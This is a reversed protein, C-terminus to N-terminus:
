LWRVWAGLDCIVKESEVDSVVRLHGSGVMYMADGEDGDAFVISGATAHVPELLAAVEKLTEEPCSAFIPVGKLYDVTGTESTTM